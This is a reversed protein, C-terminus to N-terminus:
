NKAKNAEWVLSWYFPRAAFRADRLMELESFIKCNSIPILM